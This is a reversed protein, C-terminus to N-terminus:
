HLRPPAGEDGGREQAALAIIQNIERQAIRTLEGLQNILGLIEEKAVDRREKPLRAIGGFMRILDDLVDLCDGVEPDIHVSDQGQFFGVLFLKSNKLGSNPM